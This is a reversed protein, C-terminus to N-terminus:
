PVLQFTFSSGALSSASFYNQSQFRQDGAQHEATIQLTASAGGEAATFLDEPLTLNTETTTQSFVTVGAQRAEVLYRAAGTSAKWQVNIPTSAQLATFAKADHGLGDRVLLLEPAPSLLTVPFRLTKRGAVTSDLEVQYNGALAPLELLYASQSVNFPMLQWAGAPDTLGLMAGSLSQGDAGELTIRVRLTEGTVEAYARLRSTDPTPSVQCATLLVILILSFTLVITKMM